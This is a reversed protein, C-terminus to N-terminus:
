ANGHGRGTRQTGSSAFFLELLLQALRRSPRENGTYEAASLYACTFTHWSDERKKERCFAAAIANSVEKPSSDCQLLSQLQKIAFDEFTATAHPSETNPNQVYTIHDERDKEQALRSNQERLKQQTSRYQSAWASIVTM